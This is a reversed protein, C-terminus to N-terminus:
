RISLFVAFVIASISVFFSTILFVKGILRHAKINRIRFFPILQYSGSILFVMGAIVHLYMIVAHNAYHIHFSDAAFLGPQDKALTLDGIRGISEGLAFLVLLGSFSILIISVIRKM